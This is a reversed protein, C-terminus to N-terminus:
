VPTLLHTLVLTSSQGDRGVLDQLDELSEKFVYLYGDSGELSNYNELGDLSEPGEIGEHADKISLYKM